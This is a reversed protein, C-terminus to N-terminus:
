RKEGRIEIQLQIATSICERKELCGKQQTEIAEQVEDNVEGGNKPV